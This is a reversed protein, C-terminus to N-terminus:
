AAAIMVTVGYHSVLRSIVPEEHM